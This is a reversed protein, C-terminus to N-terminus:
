SAPLPDCGSSADGFRLQNKTVDIYVQVVPVTTSWATDVAQAFREARTRSGECDWEQDGRNMYGIAVVSDIGWQAEIQNELCNEADETCYNTYAALMKETEDAGYQCEPNTADDACLPREQGATFAGKENCGNRAADQAYQCHITVKAPDMLLYVGAPKWNPDTITGLVACDKPLAKGCVGFLRVPIGARLLTAAGTVVACNDHKGDAVAGVTDCDVPQDFELRGPTAVFDSKGAGSSPGGLAGSVDKVACFALTRPDDYPDVDNVCNEPARFVVGPGDYLQTLEAAADGSNVPTAQQATVMSVHAGPLLVAALVVIALRHIQRELNWVSFATVSQGATISARRV